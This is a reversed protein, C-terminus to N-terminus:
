RARALAALCRRMAPATWDRPGAIWWAVRGDPDVVFAEPFRRVGLRAALEDAPGVEVSVVALADGAKMSARTITKWKGSVDKM